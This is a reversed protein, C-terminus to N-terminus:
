ATRGDALQREGFREHWQVDATLRNERKVVRVSKASKQSGSGCAIKNRSQQLEAQSAVMLLQREFSQSQLGYGSQGHGGGCFREPCFGDTQVHFRRSIESAPCSNHITAVVFCCGASM